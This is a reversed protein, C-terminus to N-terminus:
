LTKSYNRAVSFLYYIMLLGTTIPLVYWSSGHTGRLLYTLILGIVVGLASKWDDGVLFDYWFLLFKKTLIAFSSQQGIISEEIVESKSTIGAQAALPRKRIRKLIEILIRSFVVFTEILYIIAFDKKPWNVGVGEGGWFIGFSVLCIGVTYKLFNEPVKTLPKALLLGLAVVVLIAVLAALAPMLLQHAVSGLTIVIFAVELGELLVAKFALTFSYWDSVGFRNERSAGKALSLEKNFIESEDHLNKYGASRLISKRLWQMGFILLVAGIFTRLVNIPLHTLLPGFILILITLLLLGAYTGRRASKWDRATGAALIITLAEVAEVLSAFFVAILLGLNLGSHM